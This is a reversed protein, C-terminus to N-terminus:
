HLPMPESAATEPADTIFPIDEPRVTSGPNLLVVAHEIVNQLERVNGRWPNALLARITTDTFQPVAEGTSRHRRWYVKLFHNTVEDMKTIEQLNIGVVNKQDNFVRIFGHVRVYQGEGERYDFNRLAQPTNNDGKQYFTVITSGTSDDLTIMHRMNEIQMDVVRGLICVENIQDGDM